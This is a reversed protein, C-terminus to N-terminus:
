KEQRLEEFTRLMEETGRRDMENVLAEAYDVAMKAHTRPNFEIGTSILSTLVKESVSGILTLKAKLMEMEISNAIESNDCEECADCEARQEEEAHNEFDDDILKKEQASKVAMLMEKLIEEIEKFIEEIEKLIEEFTKEAGNM